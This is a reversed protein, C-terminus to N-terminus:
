LKGAVLSQIDQCQADGRDAQIRIIYKGKLNNLKTQERYGRGALQAQSRKEKLDGDCAAAAKNREEDKLVGALKNQLEENQAAAMADKFESPLADFQDKKGRNMGRKGRGM